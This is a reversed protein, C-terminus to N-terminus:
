RAAKCLEVGRVVALVHLGPAAHRAHAVPLRKLCAGGQNAVREAGKPQPEASLPDVVRQRLFRRHIMAHLLSPGDFRFGASSRTVDVVSEFMRSGTTHKVYVTISTKTTKLRRQM